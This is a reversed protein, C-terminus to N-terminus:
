IWRRLDGPKLEPTYGANRKECRRRERARRRCVPSCYTHRASIRGFTRGCIACTAPAAQARRTEARALAACTHGCFRTPRRNAIRYRQQFRTGCRECIMSPREKRQTAASGLRACDKSCYRAAARTPQFMKRCFGCAKPSLRRPTPHARAACSLSCYRARDPRRTVRTGCYGCTKM